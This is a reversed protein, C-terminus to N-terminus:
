MAKRTSQCMGLAQSQLYLFSLQAASTQANSALPSCVRDWVRMGGEQSLHASINSGQTSM